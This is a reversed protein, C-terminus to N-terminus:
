DLGGGVAGEDGSPFTVAAQSYCQRQEDIRSILRELRESRPSLRM